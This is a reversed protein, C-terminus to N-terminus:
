EKGLLIEVAWRGDVEPKGKRCSDLLDTNTCGAEELADGLVPLADTRGEERIARALNRVTGNNWELWLKVDRKLPAKKARLEAPTFHLTNIREVREVFQWFSDALALPARGEEWCVDYVRYEFARNDVVDATDGVVYHPGHSGFYVLSSAWEPNAFEYPYTAIAERWKITGEVVSSLRRPKQRTVPWLDYGVGNFRGTGFRKMFARYSHPLRYGLLSEAEDLEADTVPPVCIRDPRPVVQVREYVREWPDQRQAM